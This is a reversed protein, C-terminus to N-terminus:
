KVFGNTLNKPPEGINQMKLIIFCYRYKLHTKINDVYIKAFINNSCLKLPNVESQHYRLLGKLWEEERLYQGESVFGM